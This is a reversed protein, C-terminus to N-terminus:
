ILTTSTSPLPPIQHFLTASPIPTSTSVAYPLCSNQSKGIYLPLVISCFQLLSYPCSFIRKERQSKLSSLRNTLLKPIILLATPLAFSYLTGQRPSISYPSSEHSSNARSRSFTMRWQVSSWPPLHHHCSRTYPHHPICLDLLYIRMIGIQGM